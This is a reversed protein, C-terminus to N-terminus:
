GGAPETFAWGPKPSKVGGRQIFFMTETRYQTDTVLTEEHWPNGLFLNTIDEKRFSLDPIQSWNTAIQGTEAAFPTFLILVFKRRFSAVANQLVLRWDHNHELVHRMFIGDPQSRYERLDVVKDTFPSRSGDVGVYGGNRFMKAFATGCGWDEVMACDELFHMGKQYTATEGFPTPGKVRSYDWLGLM